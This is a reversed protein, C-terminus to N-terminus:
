GPFGFMAATLKYLKVPAFHLALADACDPSRGLRKRVEEKEEVVIAGARAEYRIATLEGLIEPDPPLTLDDGTKPDLAERLRWYMASRIRPLKYKKTRDMLPPDPAASVNVARVLKRGLAAVLAEYCAAGYGIVDVHVPADSGSPYERLVLNASKEGSDTDKGRYKKLPAFWNGYRPSVVTRDAGGYAVDAAVGGLPVGAPPGERWRAQAAKVWETPILQWIDDQMGARMDGYLLQSRLPEPLAQLQAVYNTAMYYPNDTVRAPIFTRSLPRITEGAHEFPAGDPREVERGDPLMAFWRLEGPQGPAPHKEDLWPGFYTLLWRGEATAPPNFTLITRCRQNPVNTRVWGM